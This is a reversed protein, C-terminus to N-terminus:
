PIPNIGPRVEQFEETELLCENLDEVVNKTKYIQEGPIQTKDFPLFEVMQEPRGSVESEECVRQSCVSSEGSSSTLKLSMQKGLNAFSSKVNARMYDRNRHPSKNSNFSDKKVFGLAVEKISSEGSTKKRIWSSYNKSMKFTEISHFEPKREFYL